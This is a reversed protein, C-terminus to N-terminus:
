PRVIALLSIEGAGMRSVEVAGYPNLFNELEAKTWFNRHGEWSDQAGDPVTIVIVGLRACLRVLVEVAKKPDRLHELVETCLVLDFSEVPDLDYLSETRFEGSPVLQRARQIGANAYDIGVVRAPAPVTKELVARLLNGAGCGVDIVTRPREKASIEAVEEYFSVRGPALYESLLTDEGYIREYARRNNRRTINPVTRARRNEFDTRARQLALGTERRTDRLARYVRLTM